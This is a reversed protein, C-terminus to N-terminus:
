AILIVNEDFAEVSAAGLWKHSLTRARQDAHSHTIRCDSSSFHEIKCMFQSLQKFIAM